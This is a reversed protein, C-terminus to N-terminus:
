MISAHEIHIEVHVIIKFGVLILIKLTKPKQCMFSLIVLTAFGYCLQLYKKPRFNSLNHFPEHNVWLWIKICALVVHQWPKL